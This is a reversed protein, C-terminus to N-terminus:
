LPRCTTEGAFWREVDGSLNLRSNFAYDGESVRLQTRTASAAEIEMKFFAPRMGIDPAFRSVTILLTGAVPARREVEVLLGDRTWSHGRRWCADAQRVMLEASQRFPMEVARELTPKPPAIACASVFVVLAACALKGRVSM